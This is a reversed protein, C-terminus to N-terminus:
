EPALDAGIDDAEGGNLCHRMEAVKLGFAAGAPVLVLVPHPAENRGSGRTFRGLSQDSVESGIQKVAEPASGMAWGPGRAQARQKVRGKGGPRV